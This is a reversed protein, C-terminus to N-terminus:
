KWEGQIVFAAWYYPSEWRKEMSLSVQAARLAAAPQLKDRLMGAYFRKMFEATAQDKIDWLTAVIRPSGAYMFGRTLGLLGEGAGIILVDGAEVTVVEGLERESPRKPDCARIVL